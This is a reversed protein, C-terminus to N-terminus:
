LGEPLDSPGGDDDDRADESVDHPAADDVARLAGDADRVLRVVRSSTPAYNSKVVRLLVSGSVASPTASEELLAVWRFGDVLASSGRVGSAGSTEGSRRAEKTTHHSVLVTPRGPLTTFGEVVQAFRTAAANDVETDRGGFRSLPDLVVLDWPLGSRNAEERLFALLARGFSTSCGREDEPRTLAFGSRGVLSVLSIRGLAEEDAALGMTRAQAHLRRWLEADDDEGCLLAVRGGAAGVPFRGLWPVRYAVALVLALLAFSKGVGGAGALMGAVGRPLLGHGLADASGRRPRDYLLFPRPPPAVEIWRRTPTLWRLGRVRHLDWAGDSADAAPGASPPPLPPPPMSVPTVPVVHTAPGRRPPPPPTRVPAPTAVHTAIRRPPPPPARLVVATQSTSEASNGPRISSVSSM